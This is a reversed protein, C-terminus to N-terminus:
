RKRFNIEPMKFFLSMEAIRSITRKDYRESMEEKNLNTSLHLKLSPKTKWIDYRSHVIYDVLNLKNGYHQQVSEIGIDDLFIVKPKPIVVGYGNIQPNEFLYDIGALGNTQYDRVVTSMSVFKNPVQLNTLVASLIKFITTKGCGVGGTLYYGRQMTKKDTEALNQAIDRWVSEYNNFSYNPEIRKACHAILRKLNAIGVGAIEPCLLGQMQNIINTPIEM